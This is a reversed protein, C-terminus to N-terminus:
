KISSRRNRLSARQRRLADVRTRQATTLVWSMRLLLVARAKNQERTLETIRPILVMARSEDAIRIAEDFEKQAVDLAIRVARRHGLDDRFLMELSRAQDESLRLERQVQTDNWWEWRQATASAVCIAVAVLTLALTTFRRHPAYRNM